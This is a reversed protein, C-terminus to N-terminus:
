EENKERQLVRGLIEICPVVYTCVYRAKEDSVDQIILDCLEQPREGLVLYKM